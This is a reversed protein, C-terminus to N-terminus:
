CYSSYNKKGKMFYQIFYKNVEMVYTGEVSFVIHCLNGNIAFEISRALDEGSPWGWITKQM